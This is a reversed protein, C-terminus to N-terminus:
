GSIRSSGSIRTPTRRRSGRGTTAVVRAASPVHAAILPGTASAQVAPQHCNKQSLALRGASGSESHYM